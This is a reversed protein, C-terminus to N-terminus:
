GDIGFASKMGPIIGLKIWAKIISAFDLMVSIVTTGMRAISM